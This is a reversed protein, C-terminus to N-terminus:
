NVVMLVPVVIQPQKESGTALVIRENLVRGSPLAGLSLTVRLLANGDPSKEVRVSVGKPASILRLAPVTGNAATTSVTATREAPKDTAGVMGFNLTDPTAAFQGTATYTATLRVPPLETDAPTLMVTEQRAGPVRPATVFVRVTATDGNTVTAALSATKPPAALVVPKGSESRFLM